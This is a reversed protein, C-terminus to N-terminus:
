FQVSLQNHKSPESMCVLEDDDKTWVSREQFNYRAGAYILHM